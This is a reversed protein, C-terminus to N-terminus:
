VLSKHFLETSSQHELRRSTSTSRYECPWAEALKDITILPADDLSAITALIDREMLERQESLFRQILPFFFLDIANV